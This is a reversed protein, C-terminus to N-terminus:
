GMCYEWHLKTGDPLKGTYSRQGKCVRCISKNSIGTQREAENISYYVIGTEICRVAKSHKKNIEISSPVGKNWATKGKRGKGMAERTEDSYIGSKGKNWPTNGKHTISVKEKAADSMCFGCNVGGGTAHNYGYAIQCSKYKEIMQIEKKEAEEKSLGTYLVEHKINEWGYKDIANRVKTGKHYNKGGGWREKLGQKTIGIYVKGNPFIFMYVKFDNAM